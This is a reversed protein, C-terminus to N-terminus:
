AAADRAAPRLRPSSASALGSSTCSAATQAVVLGGKARLITARAPPAVAVGRLFKLLSPMGGRERAGDRYRAGADELALRVFEGRGQIEPWYFLEYDVRSDAM